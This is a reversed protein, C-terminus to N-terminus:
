ISQSSQLFSNTIYPRPQENNALDNELSAELSQLIKEEEETHNYIYENAFCQLALASLFTLLQPSENWIDSINMLISHRLNKFLTELELDDIICVNMLKILLSLNSLDLIVDLPNNILHSDVFKITKSLQNLSLLSTALVIDM